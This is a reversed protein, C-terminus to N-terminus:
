RSNEEDRHGGHYGRTKSVRGFESRRHSGREGEVDRDWGSFIDDDYLLLEGDTKSTIGLGDLKRSIECPSSCGLMKILGMKHHICEDLIRDVCCAMSVLDDTFEHQIYFTWMGEDQAAFCSEELNTLPENTDRNVIDIKIKDTGVCKTEVHEQLKKLRQEHHQPDQGDHLLLRQLGEQFEGSVLLNRYRQQFKCTSGHVAESCVSDKCEPAIDERFLEDFTKPRLHESIIM